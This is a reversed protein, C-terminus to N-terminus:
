RYVPHVAKPVNRWRSNQVRIFKDVPLQDELAKLRQLTVIKQTVTHIAVYNKLGEIFLIEDLKVKVLRTGGKVFIYDSAIANEKRRGNVNRRHEASKVAKLFREFTIPKKLYDM